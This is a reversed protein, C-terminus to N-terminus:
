TELFRRLVQACEDVSLANLPLDYGERNLAYLLRTTEPVTLGVSQLLEVQTFVQKPTGDAIVGGDSMVIVRDALVAEPMHHTILVVTM